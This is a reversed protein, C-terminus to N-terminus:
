MEFHEFCGHLSVATATSKLFDRQSVSTSFPFSVNQKHLFFLYHFVFMMILVVIDELMVTQSTESFFVRIYFFLFGFSYYTVFDSDM